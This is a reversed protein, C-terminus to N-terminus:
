GFFFTPGDHKHVKWVKLNTLFVLYLDSFYIIGNPIMESFHHWNADNLSSDNVQSPFEFIFKLPLQSKKNPFMMSSGVIIPMMTSSWWKTMSSWLVAWISYHDIIAKKVRTNTIFYLALLLWAVLKSFIFILILIRVWTSPECTQKTNALEVESLRIRGKIHEYVRQVIFGKPRKGRQLLELPIRFQYHKCWEHVFSTSFYKCHFRFESLWKSRVILSNINDIAIKFHGWVETDNKSWASHCSMSIPSLSDPTQFLASTTRVLTRLNVFKGSSCTKLSM